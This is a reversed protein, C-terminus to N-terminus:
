AGGVVGATKKAAKPQTSRRKTAFRRLTADGMLDLVEIDDGSLSYIINLGTTACLAYIPDSESVKRNKHREATGAVFRERDSLLGSVIEKQKESLADLAISVRGDIRFGPSANKLRPKKVAPM